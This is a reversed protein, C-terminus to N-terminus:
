FHKFIRKMRFGIPHNSNGIQTHATQAHKVIGFFRELPLIRKHFFPGGFKGFKTLNGDYIAIKDLKQM